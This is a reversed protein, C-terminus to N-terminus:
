MARGGHNRTTAVSWWHSVETFNSILDILASSNAQKRIERMLSNYYYERSTTLEYPLGHKKYYQVQPYTWSHFDDLKLHAYYSLIKNMFWMDEVTGDKKHHGLECWLITGYQKWALLM